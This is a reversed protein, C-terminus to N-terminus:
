KEKCKTWFDLTSNNPHYKLIDNTLDTNPDNIYRELELQGFDLRQKILRLSEVAKQELIEKSGNNKWLADKALQICELFENRLDGKLGIFDCFTKPDLILVNQSFPIDTPTKKPESSHLPILILDKFRGQYGRRGHKRISSESNGLFYDIIVLKRVHNKNFYAKMQPSLGLFNKDVVSCNDGHKLRMDELSDEEYRNKTKINTYVEYFSFCGENRTHQLYIREVIIHGNNGVDQFEFPDNPTLGLTEIIDNYYINRRIIAKIYGNHGYDRLM